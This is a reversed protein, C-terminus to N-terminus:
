VWKISARPITLFGVTHTNIVEFYGPVCSMPRAVLTHARSRRHRANAICPIKFVNPRSLACPCPQPMFRHQRTPHVDPVAWNGPPTSRATGTAARSGPSPSRDAVCRRCRCAFASTGWGSGGSSLAQLALGCARCYSRGGGGWVCVLVSCNPSTADIQLLLPQFNLTYFRRSQRRSM